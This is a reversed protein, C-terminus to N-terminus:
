GGLTAFALIMAFGATGVWVAFARWGPLVRRQRIPKEIWREIALAVAISVVFRIIYLPWGTMGGM